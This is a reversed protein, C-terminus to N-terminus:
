LIAKKGDQILDGNGKFYVHIKKLLATQKKAAPRRKESEDNRRKYKIQM